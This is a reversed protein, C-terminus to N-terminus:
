VCVHIKRQPAPTTHSAPLGKLQELLFQALWDRSNLADERMRERWERFFAAMEEVDRNIKGVTEMDSSMKLVSVEVGRVNEHIEKAVQHSKVIYDTVCSEAIM